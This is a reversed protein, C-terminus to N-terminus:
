ARGTHRFHLSFRHPQRKYVDKVKEADQFEEQKSDNLVVQNGRQILFKAAEYGSRAFGQRKYVDAFAARLAADGPPAESM